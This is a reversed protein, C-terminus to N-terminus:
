CLNPCKFNALKM